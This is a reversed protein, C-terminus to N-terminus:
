PRRSLLTCGILFCDIPAYDFMIDNCKEILVGVSIWVPSKQDKSTADVSAERPKDKM